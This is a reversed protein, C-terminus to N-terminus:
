LMHMFCDFMLSLVIGNQSSIAMSMSLLCFVTITRHIHFFKLSVALVTMLLSLFLLAHHGLVVLAAPLTNDKCM